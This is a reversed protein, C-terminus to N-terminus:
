SVTSVSRDARNEPIGRSAGGAATSGMSWGGLGEAAHMGADAPRIPRIGTLGFAAALQQNIGQEASDFRTHPSYVAIGNEILSLLMGGESNADTIQRTARFLVPHHTVILQVGKGIAEAAVDPTVTLCTM